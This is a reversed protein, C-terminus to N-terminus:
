CTRAAGGPPSWLHSLPVTGDSSSLSVYQFLRDVVERVLNELIGVVVKPKGQIEGTSCLTMEVAEELRILVMALDRWSDEVEVEVLPGAGVEALDRIQDDLLEEVVGVVLLEVM